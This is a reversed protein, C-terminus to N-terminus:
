LRAAPDHGGPRSMKYRSEEDWDAASEAAASEWPRDDDGDSGPVIGPLADPYARQIGVAQVYGGPRDLIQRFEPEAYEKWIVDPEIVHGDSDIIEPRTAQKPM